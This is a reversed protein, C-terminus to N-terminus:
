RYRTNRGSPEKANPLGKLVFFAKAVLEQFATALSSVLLRGVYNDM